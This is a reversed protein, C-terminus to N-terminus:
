VAHAHVRRAHIGDPRAQRIVVTQKRQRLRGNCLCGGVIAVIAYLVLIWIIAYPPLSGGTIFDGTWPTVRTIVPVAIGAGSRAVTFTSTWQSVGCVNGSADLPVSVTLTGGIDAPVTAVTISYCAPIADVM